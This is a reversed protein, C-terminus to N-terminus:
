RGGVTGSARPGHGSLGAISPYKDTFMTVHSTHPRFFRTGAAAAPPGRHPCHRAGSGHIVSAAVSLKASITSFDTSGTKTSKHAGHHPGHRVTLGISSRSARSCAPWTFSTLTFMSSAGSSARRKETCAM